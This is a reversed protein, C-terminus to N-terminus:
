VKNACCTSRKHTHPLASLTSLDETQQYAHLHLAYLFEHQICQKVEHIDIFYLRFHLTYVTEAFFNHHLPPPM